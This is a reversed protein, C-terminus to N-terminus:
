RLAAAVAGAVERVGTLTLRGPRDMGTHVIRATGWNGRMVTVCEAAGKALAIGDVLVPLFRSRRVGLARAVATGVPGARHELVVVGGQDDVGDFNVVAAEQLLNARERVLARAGELGFEEADLFLVGVPLAPPLADLVALVALVGTANDVAGPSDDRTRCRALLLAGIAGPIALAGWVPRWGLATRLGVVALVGVLGAVCLAVALLRSLMSLRQGKSDFHAALWVRVRDGPRVGILNTAPAAPVPLRWLVPLFPYVALVAAGACAWAAAWVAPLRSPALLLTGFVVVGVGAGWVQAAILRAPSATFPHEMVVCGRRELEARLLERVRAHNSSGVLRPVALRDLLAHLPLPPDTM